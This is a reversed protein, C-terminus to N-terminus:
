KQGSNKTFEVMQAPPHQLESSKVKKERDAIYRRRGGNAGVPVEVDPGHEHVTIIEFNDCVINLIPRGNM